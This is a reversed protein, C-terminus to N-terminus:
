IIPQLIRTERPCGVSSRFQVTELTCM